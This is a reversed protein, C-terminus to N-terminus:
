IFSTQYLSFDYVRRSTGNSDNYQKVFRKFIAITRFKSTVNPRFSFLETCLETIKYLTIENYVITTLYNLSLLRMRKKGPVEENSSCYHM